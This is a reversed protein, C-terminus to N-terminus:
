AVRAAESPTWVVEITGPKTAPPEVMTCEDPDDDGIPNGCARCYHETRPELYLDDYTEM